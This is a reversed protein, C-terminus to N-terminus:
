TDRVVVAVMEAAVELPMPYFVHELVACRLRLMRGHCTPYPPFGPRSPNSCLHAGLVLWDWVEQGLSVRFDDQVHGSDCRHDPPWPQTMGLRLGLARRAM